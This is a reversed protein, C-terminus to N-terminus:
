LNDVASAYTFALLVNSFKSFLVRWIIYEKYRAFSTVLFTYLLIMFEIFNHYLISVITIFEPFLSFLM